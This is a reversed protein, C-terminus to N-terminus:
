GRGRVGGARGKDLADVPVRAVGEAHLPEAFGGDLEVADAMELVGVVLVQWHQDALVSLLNFFLTARLQQPLHLSNSQVRLARSQFAPPSRRPIRVGGTPSLGTSM